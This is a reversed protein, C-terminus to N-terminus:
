MVGAGGGAGCVGGGVVVGSVVVLDILKSVIPPGFKVLHIFGIRGPCVRHDFRTSRPPDKAGLCTIIFQYDYSSTGHVRHKIMKSLLM